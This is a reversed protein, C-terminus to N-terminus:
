PKGKGKGKEPKPTKEPKGGLPKPKDKGTLGYEQMIQGWGMGSARKAFVEEVSVGAAQSIQFALSIEGFGYGQCFWGMITDYDSGFQEALKLGVPHQAEGSGDCYIGPQTDEEAGNENNPNDEQTPVPEYTSSIAQMAMSDALFTEFQALQQANSDQILTGAMLLDQAFANIARALNEADGKLALTHMEELREHVYTVLLESQRAPDKTLSLRMAELQRDLSYLAEGPVAADAGSLLVGGALSLAIITALIIRLM